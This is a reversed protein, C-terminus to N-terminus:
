IPQQALVGFSQTLFASTSLPSRAPIGLSITSFIFAKSRSFRSSRWAFSIKRLADAYKAIASSSRRVFYCHDKYVRVALSVPDLRDAVNQRDGRGGIISIQGLPGIRCSQRIRCGAVFSQAWLDQAHERLISPDIAHALHPSLQAALAKINRSAGHCPQHLAHTNLPSDAACRVPRRDGVLFRGTWQVLHVTM